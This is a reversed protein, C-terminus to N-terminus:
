GFFIDRTRSQKGCSFNLHMLSANTERLVSSWLVASVVQLTFSMRDGVATPDNSPTRRACLASTIM